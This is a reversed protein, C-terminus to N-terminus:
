ILIYRMILLLLLAPLYVISALFLQRASRVDRKRWLRYAPLLFALGLLISGMAYIPGAQGTLAPLPGLILLALSYLLVVQCTVHGCADVIPLMRLGGRAYDERYLWALAMFHPIQWAFLIAALIWAGSALTGTAAAWGIMPPLAGVIAGILTCFSSRYKMPTYVLLYLLETVIALWAALPTTTMFLITPGAVGLVLGWSLAQRAGLRGSPLPRKRTRDMRADNHQEGWQNLANAALAAMATGLLMWGFRPDRIATADAVIFGVAATFLVMMALGAKSLQLYVACHTLL